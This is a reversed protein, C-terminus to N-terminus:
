SLVIKKTFGCKVLEQQFKTLITSYTRYPFYAKSTFAQYDAEQLANPSKVFLPSIPNLFSFAGKSEKVARGDIYKLLGEVNIGDRQCEKKLAYMIKELEDGNFREHRLLFILDFIDKLRPRVLLQHIKWSVQLCYPCVKELKFPKGLLPQYILEEPPFDLDLNFSIDLDINFASDKIICYLDTSTTPFDEDMGYDVSSWSNYDRFSKFWIKPNGRWETVETLWNSFFREAQEMDDMYELCVWDLDRVHRMLPNPFFQRTIVSGKIMFPAEIHIADKLFGEIGVLLINDM